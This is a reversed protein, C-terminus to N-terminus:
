PGAGEQRHAHSQIRGRWRKGPFRSPRCGAEKISHVNPAATIISTHQPYQRWATFLVMPHKCPTTSYAVASPLPTLDLAHMCERPASHPTSRRLHPGQGVVHRVHPHEEGVRGAQAGRDARRSPADRRGLWPPRLLPLLGHLASLQVAQTKQQQISSADRRCHPKSLSGAM